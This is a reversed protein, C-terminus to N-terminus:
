RSAATAVTAHPDALPDSQASGPETRVELIIKQMAPAYHNIYGAFLETRIYDKHRRVHSKVTERWYKQGRSYLLVRECATLAYGVFRRYRLYEPGNKQLARLDPEDFDCCELALTKMYELFADLAAAERSELLQGWAILSGIIALIVAVFTAVGGLISAFTALDEFM